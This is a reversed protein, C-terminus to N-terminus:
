SFSNHVETRQVCKRKHQSKFKKSLLTIHKVNTKDSYPQRKGMFSYNYVNKPQFEKDISIYFIKPM